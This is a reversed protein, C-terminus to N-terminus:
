ECASCRKLALRAPSSPGSPLRVLDFCLVRNLGATSLVVEDHVPTSGGM